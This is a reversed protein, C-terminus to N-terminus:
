HLEKLGVHAHLPFDLLQRVLTLLGAGAGAGVGVVPPCHLEDFQPAQRELFVQGAPQVHCPTQTYLNVINSITIFLISQNWRQM